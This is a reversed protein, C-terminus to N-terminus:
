THPMIKTHFQKNLRYLVITMNSNNAVYTGVSNVGLSDGFTVLCPLIVVISKRIATGVDKAMKGVVCM